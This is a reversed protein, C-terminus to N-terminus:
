VRWTVGQRLVRAPNGGILRGDGEFRRHLLSGAAVICDSGVHTGKLLTCQAGIWVRDGTSVPRHGNIMRGQEDLIAHFDNDLITVDWALLNDAGLEIRHGCYISTQATATFDEGITLEGTCVIRTTTGMRCRGKFRVKGSVQWVSKPGHMDFATNDHFGIRVIGTRVQDLVVEGRLKRFAVRHSLLIPLRVAQALPLYRLNFWLSGPLSRALWYAKRLERIIMLLRYWKADAHATDSASV